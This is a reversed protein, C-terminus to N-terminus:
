TAVLQIFVLFTPNLIVVAVKMQWELEDLHCPTPDLTLAELFVTARRISAVLAAPLEFRGFEVDVRGGLFGGPLVYHGSMLKRRIPISHRCGGLKVALFHGHSPM